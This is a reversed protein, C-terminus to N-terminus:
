LFPNERHWPQIEARYTTSEPGFLHTVARIRLEGRHFARFYSVESQVASCERGAWGVPGLAALFLADRRRM